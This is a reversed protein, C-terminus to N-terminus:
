SRPAAQSRLAERVDYFLNLLRWGPIPGGGPGAVDVSQVKKLLPAFRGQAHYREQLAAHGELDWLAALDERTLYSVGWLSPVDVMRQLCQMTEVHRFGRATPVGYIGIDVLLRGQARSPDRLFGTVSRFPCNWLPLIGVRRSIWSLMEPVRDIRVALDQLVLCRERITPPMHNKMGQRWRRAEGQRDIQRRGWTTTSFPWQGALVTGMWFLGRQHRFLYGYTPVVDSAGARAQRQVHQFYWPAGHEQAPYVPLGGDSDAFDGVVLVFRDHAFVFGEVFDHSRTAEEMADLYPEVAGFALYHSRVFSGAPVLKLTVATVIGLTGYTGPLMRFLEPESEASATVVDGNGLVVEFSLATDNFLGHRHSSTEIGLGGLLGGVTFTDLEPVVAPLLDAELTSRCLRDLTVGTEVTATRSKPDVALIHVLERLDVPHTGDKYALGHPTHGARVKVLGLIAGPPCARVSAAV